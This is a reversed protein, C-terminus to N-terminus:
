RFTEPKGGLLIPARRPVVKGDQMSPLEYARMAGPRACTQRLEAGDYSGPNIAAPAVPAVVVVPRPGWAYRTEEGPVRHILNGQQLNSLISHVKHQGVGSLRSVQEPTVTEMQLNATMFVSEVSQRELSKPTARRVHTPFHEIAKATPAPTPTPTPAPAPAPTPAPMRLAGIAARAARPRAASPMPDFSGPNDAWAPKKM